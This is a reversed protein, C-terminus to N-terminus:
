EDIDEGRERAAFYDGTTRPRPRDGGRFIEGEGADFVAQVRCDECMKLREMQGGKFMWHKDGLTALMKEITSKSAFPKGCSVCEFPEEEKIVHREAADDRFNYRPELSIVKEPCTNKCLGCQICADESFSLQPMDPNDGLAGTPCAGVCALCLTCGAVDVHVTGFAAGKALAIHDRPDPAHKRLHASALRLNTRKREQPAFAAAKPMSLKRRAAPSDHLADELADPDAATLVEVLGSEYGLGGLMTEVLGTQHALGELEDRKTPHVLIVVRHAGMAIASILMEANLQTPENIPVPITAAPLGRGFRASAEITEFSRGEAHFLLTPRKGGADLYTKLLTRVRTLLHQDRPYAYRAAETPCVSNCAGCGGCVYPDITVHDGDPQIASAPCVDLCRTCGTVRARSHACVDPDFAVYRPKEFEGVLDSAQLIAKQVAVPDSPDVRIYGDRKEHAPFLPAEGSMDLIIDCQSAAQNSPRGWALEGRSAPDLPAYRDVVIEFGGLHGSAGAVRGRAVLLDMIGLPMVDGPDTLLLSVDLRGELQRAADVAAQGAGYLLCIGASEMKVTAVDPRDLAAASLLAAIKPHAKDAEVSWGAYERINAFLPPHAPDQGTESLAEEFATREQTCAVLTGAGEAEADGVLHAFRELERRCLNRHVPPAEGAKHGCAKAFKAGDLPMTDECDCILVTKGNLKM